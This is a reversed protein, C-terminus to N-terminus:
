KSFFLDFLEPPLKQRVRSKRKRLADESVKMVTEVVSRRLGVYFLMCMLTDDPTLAAVMQRMNACTESFNAIVSDTLAKLKERAIDESNPVMNLQAVSASEPLTLYFEKTLQFKETLATMVDTSDEEPEKSELESLRLNLRSIKEILKVQRAKMQRSRYLFFITVVLLLVIAGGISWILRSKGEERILAQDRQNEIETLKNTTKIKNISDTIIELSDRYIMAEEYRGSEREMEYLSGFIEIKSDLSFGYSRISKLAETAAKFEGKAKYFSARELLIGINLELISDFRPNNTLSDLIREGEAQNDLHHFYIRALAKRSEGSMKTYGYKDSLDRCESLLSILSDRDNTNIVLNWLLGPLWQLSDAERAAAVAKQAYLKSKGGRGTYSNYYPAALATYLNIKVLPDVNEDIKSESEMLLEIAKENENAKSLEHAKELDKQIRESRNERCGIAGCLLVLATIILIRTSTIM